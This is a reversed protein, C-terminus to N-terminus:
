CARIQISLTADSPCRYCVAVSGARASPSHDYRKSAPCYSWLYLLFSKFCHYLVIV